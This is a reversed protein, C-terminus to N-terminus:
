RRQVDLSIRNKKLEALEAAEILWVGGYQKAALRGAAILAVIRRPTGHIALAAQATTLLNM